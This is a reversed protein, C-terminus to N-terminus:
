KTSFNESNNQSPGGQGRELVYFDLHASRPCETQLSGIIVEHRALNELNILTNSWTLQDLIASNLASRLQKVNFFVSYLNRLAATVFHGNM